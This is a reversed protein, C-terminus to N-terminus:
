FTVNAGVTFIRQQPMGDWDVGRHNDYEDHTFTEPDLGSYGTITLLNQAQVYLRIKSIDLKSTIRKPLTYGLSLNALKLFSGDEVFHSDAFPANFLVDGDGYGIRPTQGDGPNEKSQWRGLIEKGNNSFEMNLLSKPRTANM